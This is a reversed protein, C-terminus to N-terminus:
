PCCPALLSQKATIIREHHLPITPNGLRILALVYLENTDVQPETEAGLHVPLANTYSFLSDTPMFSSKKEVCVCKGDLGLTM